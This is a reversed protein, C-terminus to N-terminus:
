FVCAPAATASMTDTGDTISVATNNGYGDYTFSYVLGEETTATKVNHFNDYTYTLVSGTSLIEKTLDNNTYEYTTKKEDSTLLSIVNGDEDYELASGFGEKYLQIGDFYATNVNYSYILSVEIKWFDKEAFIATAAFQWHDSDPNFRAV